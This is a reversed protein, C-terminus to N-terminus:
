GAGVRDRARAKLFMPILVFWQLYGTGIALAWLLTTLLLGASMSLLGTLPGAILGLPFALIATGYTLLLDADSKGSKLLALTSVLLVISLVLWTGRAISQTLRGAWYSAFVAIDVFPASVLAGVVAAGAVDQEVLGVVTFGAFIIASLVWVVAFIKGARGRLVERVTIVESQM